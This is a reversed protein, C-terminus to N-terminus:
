FAFGHTAFGQRLLVSYIFAAIICEEDDFCRCKRELESRELESAEGRNFIKSM